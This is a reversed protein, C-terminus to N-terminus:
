LPLRSFGCCVSEAFDGAAMKIEEAIAAQRIEGVPQCSYATSIIEFRLAETRSFSSVTKGLSNESVTRAGSVVLIVGLGQPERQQWASVNHPPQPLERLFLYRFSEPIGPPSHENRSFRLRIGRVPLARPIRRTRPMGLAENRASSRSVCPALWGRTTSREEQTKRLTPKTLKRLLRMM